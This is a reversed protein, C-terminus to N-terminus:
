SRDVRKGIKKQSKEPLRKIERQTLTEAELKGYIESDRSGYGGGDLRQSWGLM